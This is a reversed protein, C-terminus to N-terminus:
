QERLDGTVFKSFAIRDLKGEETLLGLEGLKRKLLQSCEKKFRITYFPLFHGVRAIAFRYIDTASRGSIFPFVFGPEWSECNESFPYGENNRRFSRSDEYSKIRGAPPTAYIFVCLYPRSINRETIAVKELRSIVGPVDQGGVTDSSKKISGYLRIGQQFGPTNIEAVVDGERSGDFVAEINSDGSKSSARMLEIIVYQYFVGVNMRHRQMEHPIADFQFIDEVDCLSYFHPSLAGILIVEPREREPNPARPEPRDPGCGRVRFGSGLHMKFAARLIPCSRTKLHKLCTNVLAEAHSDIPRIKGRRDRRTRDFATEVASMVLADALPPTHPPFLSRTAM